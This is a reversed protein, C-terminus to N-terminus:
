LALHDSQSIAFSDRHFAVLGGPHFYCNSRRQNDHAGQKRGAAALFVLPIQRTHPQTETGQGNEQKKGPLVKLFNCNSFHSV